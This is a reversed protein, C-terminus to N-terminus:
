PIVIQAGDETQDSYSSMLKNNPYDKKTILNSKKSINLSEKFILSGMLTLAQPMILFIACITMYITM